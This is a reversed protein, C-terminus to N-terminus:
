AKPNILYKSNLKRFLLYLCLINWQISTGEPMRRVAPENRNFFDTHMVLCGKYIYGIGYAETFYVNYNM